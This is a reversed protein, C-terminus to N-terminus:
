HQQLETNVHLFFKVWCLRSLVKGKEILNFVWVKQGKYNHEIPILKNSSKKKIPLSNESKRM